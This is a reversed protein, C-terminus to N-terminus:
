EHSRLVQAPRTSLPRLVFVLSALLTAAIGGLVIALASGPEFAYPSDMVFRMVVWGALGGAIIAVIGAAAGMMAARLAFSLLIRARSAGLVKLVAAEYIRAREGSAAAGILVVFGTLLTAMAAITTAKAIATLAETVRGIAAKVGIATINPFATAIERLIAAEAGPDAYVTAIDTHPAGAVADPDLTLVFGIGANSFDVVRFSTITALIDRGLINITLQDCLKLGLEEAEEAAFSIQPPGQYYAPWWTGATLKTAAPQAAAYTIGRDGALVWHDGAVTRADQGNIQTIIGRLMPASEVKSVAPNAALISRFDDIQDPQIDVFFFSPARTPLDRSIAARLNADIQGVAALVTLGLGLALVVQMTEARPAGISALAARLAVKGRLATLRAARRALRVLAWATAALVVLAAFVGGATGLALNRTGSLGVAGGILLAALALMALAYRARPWGGSLGGRYLAAARVQESRALPWLAFLFASTVGYFAAEIIPRPCLAIQAPFPLASQIQEAFALPTAIGLTLGLAVGLTVLVAIQILYTQFILGGTAGLTRLTAITAIKSELYSRVAAAVGVGGVALGALGVLILFAGIREVFRAVGPAAKRSDSWRLGSNRFKTEAETQLAALDANTPLLLRYSSDFLTGPELLGSQALAKTKVITRPALAFGGTASDPERLIRGQLIFEQEGLKFRDGLALGIQDALIGDMVAGPLDTTSLATALEGTELQVSGLLPYNDDVAKVQTLVHADGAVVMSRFDVIESTKAAIQDLFAREEPTAFRYTFEVQADGGLLVAGQDTLGAEIASRVMGVGAIAAVGLALCALFVWFGRLGGRLEARAIRAALKLSM